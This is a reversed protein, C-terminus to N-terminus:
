STIPIVITAFNTCLVYVDGNAPDYIERNPFNQSNPSTLVTLPVKQSLALSSTVIYISPGPGSVYFDENMPDYTLSGIDYCGGGECYSPVHVSGVLRNTASSIESVVNPGTTGPNTAAFISGNAPDYALDAGNLSDFNGTGLSVKAAVKNSSNIVYISTIVQVPGVARVQSPGV